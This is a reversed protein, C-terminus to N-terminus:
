KLRAKIRKFLDEDIKGTLLDEAARKLIENVLTDQDIYEFRTSRGDKWKRVLGLSLLTRINYDFTFRSCRVLSCIEKQNSGPNSKIRHLIKQQLDSLPVGILNGEPDIQNSQKTDSPFYCRKGNLIRALIMKKRELYQLHYRLTGDPMQYINRLTVFSVGPYTAIHNFISRRTHHDIVRDEKGM